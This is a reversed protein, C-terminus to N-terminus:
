RCKCFRTKGIRAEKAKHWKGTWTETVFFPRGTLVVVRNREESESTAEKAQGVNQASLHSNSTLRDSIIWASL